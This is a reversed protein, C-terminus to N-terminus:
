RTVAESSNFDIKIASLQPGRPVPVASWTIGRWGTGQIHKPTVSSSASLSPNSTRALAPDAKWGEVRFGRLLTKADLRGEQLLQM